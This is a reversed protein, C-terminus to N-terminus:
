EEDDDDDDDDALYLADYEDSLQQWKAQAADDSDFSWSTISGDSNERIIVARTDGINAGDFDLESLRIFLQYYGGFESDGFESDADFGGSMNKNWIAKVLRTEGEFKGPSHIVETLDRAM